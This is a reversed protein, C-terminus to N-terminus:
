EMYGRAKAAVVAASMACMNGEKDTWSYAQGSVTAGERIADALTYNTAVEMGIGDVVDKIPDNTLREKLLEVQEEVASM